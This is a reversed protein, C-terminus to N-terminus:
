ALFVTLNLVIESVVKAISFNGRCCDPPNDGTYSFPNSNFFLDLDCTESNINNEQIIRQSAPRDCIALLSDSNEFASVKLMVNEQAGPSFEYYRVRFPNKTM